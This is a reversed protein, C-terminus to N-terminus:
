LHEGVHRLPEDFEEGEDNLDRHPWGHAWDECKIWVLDVVTQSHVLGRHLEPSAMSFYATESEHPSGHRCFPMSHLHSGALRYGTKPINKRCHFGTAVAVKWAM